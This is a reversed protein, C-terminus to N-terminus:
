MFYEIFPTRVRNSRCGNSASRVRGRCRGGGQQTPRKRAILLEVAAGDVMSVDRGSTWVAVNSYLFPVLVSSRGIEGVTKDDVAMGARECIEVVKDKNLKRYHAQNRWEHERWGGGPAGDVDELFLSGAIKLMRALCCVREYLMTGPLNSGVVPDAVLDHVDYHRDGSFCKFSSQDFCIEDFAEPLLSALLGMEVPSSFDAHILRPHAPSEMKDLFFVRPDDYHVRGRRAEYPSAGLVLYAAGTIHPPLRGAMEARRDHLDTTLAVLDDMLTQGLQADVHAPPFVYAFPQVLVLGVPTRPYDPTFTVQVTCTVNRADFTVMVDCAPTVRVDWGRLRM